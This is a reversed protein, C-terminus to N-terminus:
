VYRRWSAEKRGDKRLCLLLDLYTCHVKKMPWSKETWTAGDKFTAVFPSVQDSTQYDSGDTMRQQETSSYLGKLDLYARSSSHDVTVLHLEDDHEINALLTHFGRM